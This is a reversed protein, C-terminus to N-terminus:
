FDYILNGLLLFLLGQYRSFLCLCPGLILGANQMSAWELSPPPPPVCCNWVLVIHRRISSPFSLIKPSHPLELNFALTIIQLFSYLFFDVIQVAVYLQLQGFVVIHECM